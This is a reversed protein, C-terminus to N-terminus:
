TCSFTLTLSEVILAWSIRFRCCACCFINQPLICITPQFNMGGEPM